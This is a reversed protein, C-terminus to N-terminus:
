DAGLWGCTKLWLIIFKQHDYTYLSFNVHHFSRWLLSVKKKIFSSVEMFRLICVMDVLVLVIYHLVNLWCYTNFWLGRTVLVYRLMWALWILVEILQSWVISYFLLKMHSNYIGTLQYIITGFSWSHTWQIDRPILM